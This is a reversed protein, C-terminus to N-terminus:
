TEYSEHGDPRMHSMNMQKASRVEIKKGTNETVIWKMVTKKMGICRGDIHRMRYEWQCAEDQVAM